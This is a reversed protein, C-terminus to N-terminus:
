NFNFFTGVAVASERCRDNRFEQLILEPISFLTRNKVYNKRSDGLEIKMVFSIAIIMLVRSDLFQLFFLM